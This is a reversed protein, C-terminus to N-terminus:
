GRKILVYAFLLFLLVSITYPIFEGSSPTICWTRGVVFEGNIWAIGSM